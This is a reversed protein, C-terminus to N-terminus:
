FEYIPRNTIYEEITGQKMYIYEMTPWLGVAELEEAVLHDSGDRRGLEGLQCGQYGRPWGRFYALINIHFQSPLFLVSNKTMVYKLM